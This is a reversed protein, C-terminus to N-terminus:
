HLILFQQRIQSGSCMSLEVPESQGIIGNQLLYEVEQRMAALKIPNMQYPHQKIPHADGVDVDHHVATVKGPVDPFM